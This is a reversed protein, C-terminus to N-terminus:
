KLRVRRLVKEEYLKELEANSLKELLDAAYRSNVKIWEIKEKRENETMSRGERPVLRFMDNTIGKAINELGNM